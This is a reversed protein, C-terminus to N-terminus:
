SRRQVPWLRLWLRLRKRIRLRLWIRLWLWLWIEEGKFLSDNLILGIHKIHKEEYFENLFQLAKVNTFGERLVFISLDAQNMLDVADTVLGLPATDLLVYQYRTKLEKICATMEDSMILESPNPPVPGSPIVDVNPLNTKFIIEELTARNSLHNSIGMDNIIDFSLHIRPKRMDLGVVVVRAGSIALSQAINLTCFTKGEGSVSSTILSYSRSEQSKKLMFFLNTNLNRFSESIISKSNEKFVLQEKGTHHPIAAIFPINTLRIVQERSRLKSDFFIKVFIYISPLFFGLLLAIVYNSQMDPKTQYGITAENMISYDNQNGSRAIEYEFKRELLLIYMKEQISSKRIMGLGTRELTPLTSLKGELNSM